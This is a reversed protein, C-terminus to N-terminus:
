HRSWLVSLASRGEKPGWRAPERGLFRRPEPGNQKKGVAADLRQELLSDLGKAAVVVVVVV